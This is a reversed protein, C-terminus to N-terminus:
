VCLDKEYKFYCKLKNCKQRINNCNNAITRASIHLSKSAVLLSEFEGIKNNSYDFQIVKQFKEKKWSVKKNKYKLTRVPRGDKYIWIKNPYQINRKTIGRVFNNILKYDINLIRGAEKCSEYERILINNEFELIPRKNLERISALNSPTRGKLAKSIKESHEKRSQLNDNRKAILINYGYTNILSEFKSIYFNERDLLEELVTEELISYQFNHEKHKNYARQLYPNSHKKNKLASRHQMLRFNIDTSSGIYRKNTPICHICYIGIM